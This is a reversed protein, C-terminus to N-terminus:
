RMWVRILMCQSINKLTSSGHHAFYLSEESRTLGVAPLFEQETLNACRTCVILHDANNDATEREPANDFRVSQRAQDRKTAIACRDLAARMQTRNDSYRDCASVRDRSVFSVDHGRDVARARQRAISRTRSRRREQGGHSSSGDRGHLRNRRPWM